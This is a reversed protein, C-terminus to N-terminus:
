FRLSMGGNVVRQAPYTGVLTEPDSQKFDSGTLLNFGNLFIRLHNIKVKGLNIKNFTYALEANKLRVYSGSRVWFSSTVNNNVNAGVSLRPYTATAATAPTWRGLHHAYAQGKGDSQFEWENAGKLLLNQNSVGQILFTLSFNKWSFGIDIGYFMLPKTSGIAEQDFQNIVGDKNLDKYKIDGPVSNYGEVVPGGGAQTVFGNAAYGFTQGAQQGTKQMWAYPYDPEDNFLVKSDSVTLNGSVYYSLDGAKGSWGATAEFGSYLNQGINQVINDGWGLLASSRGRAQVLDKLKNHYYDVTLMGKNNAFSMDLGVDLKLAKEWTQVDRPQKFARGGSSSVSTGFYYGTAGSYRDIYDYYGAVANGNLGYSARIKLTNVFGSKNFFDENSINWAAGIAPFVGFRNGPEYRNNGSYSMAAEIMYKNQFSYQVKGALTQYIDALDSNDSYSDTNYLLLVDIANRGWNHTYGTSAEAYFHRSLNSVTSTNKQDSKTGYRNYTTDSSVPDIMMQFTEFDKSRDILQIMNLNYSFRGKIWWGKLVDDMNRKLGVDSYMDGLTSKQYGSLVSQGYINNSYNVNGGLSSDPNMVPYANNPTNRIATLLNSMGGGPENQSQIRGFLGVSLSLRSTLDVGINSRFIYRNYESNTSYPNISSQKLAGKQGMYDLSVFYHMNKGTGGANLTYRSLPSQDKMVKDYWNIDPHGYPDSGNKYANLDNASYITAKGDNALAENYLTGYQYASLAKPIILPSSVGTQATLSLNFGPRKEGKRTTILVAGNMSRIGLMATSLADKLVTVSEIEQPDISYLPRQVGDILVIPELGRLKINVGDNGPEGSIQNTYLGAIRGTLGNSIFASPTAELKEGRLYGISEVQKDQQQTGYLVPYSSNYNALKHQIPLSDLNKATQDQQSDQASVNAIPIYFLLWMAMWKQSPFIKRFYSLGILSYKIM